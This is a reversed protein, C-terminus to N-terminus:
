DAVIRTAHHAAGNPHTRIFTMPMLFRERLRATLHREPPEEEGVAHLVVILEDPKFEAIEDEAALTPDSDGIAGEMPIGRRELVGRLVDLRQKAIPREAHDDGTIRAARGAPVPAVGRVEADGGCRATLTSRTREDLDGAMMMILIRHPAEPDYQLQM